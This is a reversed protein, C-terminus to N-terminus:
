IEITLVENKYDLCDCFTISSDKKKNEKKLIHQVKSHGVIQHYGELAHFYYDYTESKDAWIPGGYPAWGGRSRGVCTILDMDSSNFFIENLKDAINGEPLTKVEKLFVNYWDNSIGAHTWIYNKEQYAIQFLNKNSEFITQLISAYSSRYGSCGHHKNYYMEDHNGLLLIVKELYDYKLQIIDLLNNIIQEDTTPPYDDTYDGLFIIKDCTMDILEKWILKGHLDPITQIRM